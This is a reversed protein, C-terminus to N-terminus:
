SMGTACEPFVIMTADFRSGTRKLAQRTVAVVRSSTFLVTFRSISAPFSENAEASCVTASVPM